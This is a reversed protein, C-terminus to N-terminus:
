VGNSYLFVSLFIFVILLLIRCDATFHQSLFAEERSEDLPIRSLLVYAILELVCFALM